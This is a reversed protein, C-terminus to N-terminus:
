FPVYWSPLAYSSPEGFDMVPLLQGYTPLANLFQV